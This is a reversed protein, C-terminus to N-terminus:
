WFFSRFTGAATDTFQLGWATTSYHGSDLLVSDRRRSTNKLNRYGKPNAFKYLRTLDEYYGMFM